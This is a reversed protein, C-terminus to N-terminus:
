ESAEVAVTIWDIASAITDDIEVVTRDDLGIAPLRPRIATLRRRVTSIRQRRSRGRTPRGLIRGITRLRRRVDRSNTAPLMAIARDIDSLARDIAMERDVVHIEWEIVDGDGAATARLRGPGTAPENGDIIVTLPRTTEPTLDAIAAPEIRLPVPGTVDLEVATPDDGLNDIKTTVAYEVGIPVISDELPTVVVIPPLVVGSRHEYLASRVEDYHDIAAVFRDLNEHVTSQESNDTAYAIAAQQLDIRATELETTAELYARVVERTETTSEDVELLTVAIRADRRESEWLQELEVGFRDMLRMTEGIDNRAVAAALDTVTSQNM